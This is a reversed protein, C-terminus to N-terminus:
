KHIGDDAHLITLVLTFGAVIFMLAIQLDTINKKTLIPKPKKM